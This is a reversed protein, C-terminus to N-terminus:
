VTTNATEKYLDDISCGLAEALKPLWVASPWYAGNEWTRISEKNTGVARALDTQTMGATKRARKLGALYQEKRAINEAM